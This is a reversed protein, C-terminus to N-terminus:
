SMEGKETGGDLSELWRVIETHDADPPLADAAAGWLETSARSLPATTGVDEALGVAIRMDKLMLRLRFGSDFTEPLVFEPWKHETSGSRGSSGNVVDLVVEPDLGFRRGAILAESTVLLHSASMLNNIAKVADGAGVEGVHVVRTGMTELLPRVTAVADQPGGVMITLSGRVAGGVGGSVPADVMTVGRDAAAAALARTRNPESSGMDVLLTGPALADLLGGEVLVQEVVDSSPLVLVVADAGDAVDALTGAAVYGDTGELKRAAAPSADFGRVGFGAALVRSAMPRGMNGLGVFGVTRVTRVAPDAPAM